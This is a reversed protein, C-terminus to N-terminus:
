DGESIKFDSHEKTQKPLQYNWDEIFTYSTKNINSNNLNTNAEWYEKTFLYDWNNPPKTENKNNNATTFQEDFVIHYQPSIHDTSTCSSCKICSKKIKRSIHM